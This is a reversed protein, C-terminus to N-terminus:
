VKVLGIADLTEGQDISPVWNERKEEGTQKEESTKAGAAQQEKSSSDLEGQVM